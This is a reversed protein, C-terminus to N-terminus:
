LLKGEFKLFSLAKETTFVMQNYLKRIKLRKITEKKSLIGNQYVIFTRFITDNAVAGYIVDFKETYTGTRNKSVFDLWEENPNEFIKVNLNRKIYEFDVSYISIVEKESINRERIKKAFSIAQEKNTTTYFGVGFDLARASKRIEPKEVLCDSGHYVIM